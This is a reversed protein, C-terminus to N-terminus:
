SVINGCETSIEELLLCNALKLVTLVSNQWKKLLSFMNTETAYYAKICFTMWSKM